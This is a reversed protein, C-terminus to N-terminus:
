KIIDPSKNFRKIGRSVYRVKYRLTISDFLSEYGASIIDQDM